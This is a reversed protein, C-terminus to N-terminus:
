SQTAVAFQLLSGNQKLYLKWVLHDVATFNLAHRLATYTTCMRLNVTDPFYIRTGYHTCIAQTQRKRDLSLRDTFFQSEHTVFMNIIVLIIESIYNTICSDTLYSTFEKKKRWTNQCKLRNWAVCEDSYLVSLWTTRHWMLCWLFTQSARLPFRVWVHNLVTLAKFGGQRPPRFKGLM